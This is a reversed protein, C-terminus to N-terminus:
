FTKKMSKENNAIVDEESSSESNDSRHPIDFDDDSDSEDNQFAEFINRRQLNPKSLGDM